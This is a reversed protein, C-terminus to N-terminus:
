AALGIDSIEAEQVKQQHSELVTYFEWQTSQPHMGEPLMSYIVQEAVESFLYWHNGLKQFLVDHSQTKGRVSM